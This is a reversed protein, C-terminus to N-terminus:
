PTKQIKQKFAPSPHFKVVKRPPIIVEQRTKPNRGIREKKQRVSFKGFNSILVNEGNGLRQILIDVIQNVYELAKVPDIEVGIRLIYDAIDKRTVNDM